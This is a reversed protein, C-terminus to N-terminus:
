VRFGVFQTPPFFLKYVFFGLGWVRNVRFGIFGMLGM